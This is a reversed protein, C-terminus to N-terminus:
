AVITEVNKLEDKEEREKIRAERKAIHTASCKDMADLAIEFRDTRIDYQPLVGDKRETYIIENGETITDAGAMVKRLKEEISEAYYAENTRILTQGYNNYKM